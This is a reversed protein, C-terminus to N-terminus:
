VDYTAVCRLDIANQSQLSRVFWKPCHPICTLLYQYSTKLNDIPQEAVCDLSRSASYFQLQRGQSLGYAAVGVETGLDVIGGTLGFDQYDSGAHVKFVLNKIVM